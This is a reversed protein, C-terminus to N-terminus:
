AHAALAREQQRIQRSLEFVREAALALSEREAESTTVLVQRVLDDLVALVRRIVARGKPTTRVFVIRRDGDSHYRVALGEHVLRDVLGTVTPLRVALDAAVESMSVGAKKTEDSLLLILLQSTTLGPHARDLLTPIRLNKAIQPIARTIRRVQQDLSIM